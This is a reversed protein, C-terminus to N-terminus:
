DLIVGQAPKTNDDNKYFLGRKDILALKGQEDYHFCDIDGHEVLVNSLMQMLKSIKM